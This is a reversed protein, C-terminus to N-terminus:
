FIDGDDGAADGKGEGEGASGNSEQEADIEIRRMVPRLGEGWRRVGEATDGSLEEAVAFTPVSYTIGTKNKTKQLKIRTVVSSFHRGRSLLRTMYATFPSIATPPLSLMVPFIEGPRLLFVRRMNKCAKGGSEPDSGFQNLPCTKCDRSQGPWEVPAEPLATGTKGDMSSCVPPTNEGTFKEPWYANVAYHDLIVGVLETVSEVEDTEGPVEFALGGGSPIKVLPFQPELGELNENILDLVMEQNELIPNVLALAKENDGNDEPMALQKAM